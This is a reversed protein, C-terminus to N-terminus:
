TIKIDSVVGRHWHFQSSSEHKIGCSQTANHQLTKFKNKKCSICKLVCNGGTVLSLTISLKHYLTWEAFFEIM